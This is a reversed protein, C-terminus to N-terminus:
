SKDLTELFPAMAADLESIDNYYQLSFAGSGILMTSVSTGTTVLMLIPIHRVHHAYSIEYGVGHSVSSVEAVMADCADLWMMDRRYIYVNETVSEEWTPDVPITFQPSFGHAVIVKQIADSLEESIRTDGRLCRAFYIHKM